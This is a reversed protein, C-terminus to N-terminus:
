SLRNEPGAKADYRLARFVPNGKAGKAHLRTRGLTSFIGAHGPM